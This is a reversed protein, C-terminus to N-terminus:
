HPYEKFMFACSGSPAVVYESHEFTKIMHKMADKTEEVYGSNYSPQGCCIQSEPFDVECGLHELLEVTAKGVNTKFLDVLCTVFLSVKM